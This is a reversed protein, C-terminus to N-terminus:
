HPFNPRSSSYFLFRRRVLLANQRRTKHLIVTANGKEALLIVLDTNTKLSTLATREEKSLNPKPPRALHLIKATEFHISDATKRPLNRIFIEVASIIEKTPITKPAIAFNLGKSLLTNESESLPYCISSRKLLLNHVIKQNQLLPSVQKKQDLTKQSQIYTSRDFFGTSPPYLLELHLKLLDRSVLDLDQRTACIRERLLSMSAKTLIKRSSFPSFQDKLKLFKPIINHDRCRSLFTLLSLLKAM